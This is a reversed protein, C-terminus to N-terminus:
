YAGLAHMLVVLQPCFSQTHLEHMDAHGSHLQATTCSDRSGQLRGLMALLRRRLCATVRVMRLKRSAWSKRSTSVGIRPLDVGSPARSKRTGALCTGKQLPMGECTPSTSQRGLPNVLTTEGQWRGLGQPLTCTKFFM